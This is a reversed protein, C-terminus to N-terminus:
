TFRSARAGPARLDVRRVDGEALRLSRGLGRGGLPPRERVRGVGLQTCDTGM